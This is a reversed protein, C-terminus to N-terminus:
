AGDTLERESKGESWSSDILSLANLTRRRLPSSAPRASAVATSDDCQAVSSLRCNQIAANGRQGTTGGRRGRLSVRVLRSQARTWLAVM